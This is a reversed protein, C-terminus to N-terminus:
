ASGNRRQHHEEATRAKLAFVELTWQTLCDRWTPEALWHWAALASHYSRVKQLVIPFLTTQKGKPVSGEILLITLYDGSYRGSQYKDTDDLIPRVLLLHHYGGHRFEAAAQRMTSAPILGEIVLVDAPVPIIIALFPHIFRVMGFVIACPVAFGM